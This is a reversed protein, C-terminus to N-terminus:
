LGVYEIKSNQKGTGRILFKWVPIVLMWVWVGGLVDRRHMRESESESGKGLEVCASVGCVNTRENAWHTNRRPRTGTSPSPRLSRHSVSSVDCPHYNKSASAHDTTTLATKKQRGTNNNM